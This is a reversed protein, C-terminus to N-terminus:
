SKLGLVQLWNRGGLKLSVQRLHHSCGDLSPDGDFWCMAAPPSDAIKFIFIFPPSFILKFIVFITKSESLCM